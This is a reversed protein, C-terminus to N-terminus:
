GQNLPVEHWGNYLYGKLNWEVTRPQQRGQDDTARVLLKEAKSRIPVEIQWLRWCFDRRPGVFEASKWTDGGDSSVEVKKVSREANGTALAYGRVRLKDGQVREGSAPVCIASNMPFEYIPEKRSAESPEQVLKYADAVFHNPSPRDSVTIKGLWKVSRAGIYGPVVARLPFGHVATLPQQNMRWALLTASASDRNSMAKELPVSGGFSFTQGQETIQDLGTFWVHKAGDKLGAKKLVDALRVGHWEANGIAGADWQVGGVKKIKSFERRRNGACTLTATTQAPQFRDKLEALTLTLPENVLGEITLQYDAERVTPTAGHSRVYFQKVPTLWEEVLASLKPEANLPQESHIILTRRLEEVARKDAEQGWLSHRSGFWLSAAALSTAQLFRRRNLLSEFENSM